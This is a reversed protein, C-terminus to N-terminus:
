RCTCIVSVVIKNYTILCNYTTANLVPFVCIPM